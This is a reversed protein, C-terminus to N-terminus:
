TQDATAGENVTVNAPQALVPPQNVVSVFIMFSKDNALTGDSARATAPYSGSDSPGPAIHINGTTPSTTAVTMFTPGFVKSFTLPDGDPDSGSIAQDESAPGCGAVSVSMNSPQNLVPARNAVGATITFSKSDSLTGDSVGAVAAYTGVDSAGTALHINGTSPSSTTVTMFTPGSVKSFTLADGDPDTASIAQDKTVGAGVTMNVIPNLVPAHNSTVGDWDFWDGAFGVVNGCPDSPDGVVYTNGFTFADCSTGFGTGFGYPNLTGAGIQLQIDPAGSAPTVPITGLVNVGPASFTGAPRGENIEVETSNQIQVAVPTYNADAPTFAGWSVTGGVVKLALTYSFMDLPQATSSAGPCAAATHSNCTQLTGNRDHNTDLTITVITTGSSRLKTNNAPNDTTMHLYQAAAPAAAGLLLLAASLFTRILKMHAGELTSM